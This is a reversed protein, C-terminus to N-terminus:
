APPPLKLGPYDILGIIEAKRALTIGDPNYRGFTFGREHGLVQAWENEPVGAREMIRTVNKRFSHFAKRRDTFGRQRKFRSFERGADAGPKGGPGEPNFGPWIRGHKATAARDKLWAIRPHLPVQRNGAPTKADEIQIFTVGDEERIQEGRLSAIEDLRMGTFLGVVILEALDSRRPPPILLVKLEGLEWPVYGRVNVGQRLRRRFGSFPNRGEYAYREAAWEWLAQLTTAHRNLTADSLGQERNGFRAQLQEWPLARNRPSRAWTPDLLRVADMFRAADARTVGRLPRDRWYGGFLHFTARKQQETNTNGKLGGQAKWWRVYDDALESFAPELETRPGVPLRQLDKAADELGALRAAQPPSVEGDGVEEALRNIAEDIGRLVADDGGFTAAEARTREYIARISSVAPSDHGAIAAWEARLGAEWHAAEAQAARRDGSKLTRYRFASGGERDVVAKPVRVRAEWKNHRRKLAAM